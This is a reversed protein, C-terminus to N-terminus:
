HGVTCRWARVRDDGPLELEKCYSQIVEFAEENVGSSRGIKSSEIVVLTEGPRTLVQRISAATGIARRGTRRDRGFEARTETEPVITANLEYDYRGLYYLAKMSNSTVVQDASRAGPGLVAVQSRWDPEEAYPRNSPTTDRGALLNLVRSGEQSLLFVAALLAAAAWRLRRAGGSGPSTSREAVLAILNALGIAWLVCMLPVLYYVYRLSKQAAVSHVMLASAVAVACFVALRRRAPHLVGIAVAVPLLPWLLPLENRFEVLYFQHRNANDAAWLPSMGLQNLLGRSEVVVLVAAVALGLMGLVLVPQRLIFPKIGPWNDLLLLAIAAAVAAGFAIVTTEQFHLGLPILGDFAVVALARKWVARGPQMAAYAAVFILLVLVAHVTYFRAFVTVGITVPVMSLLLAAAVGALLGSQRVVWM